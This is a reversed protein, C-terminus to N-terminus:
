REGTQVEGEMKKEITKIKTKKKKKLAGANKHIVKVFCDSFL